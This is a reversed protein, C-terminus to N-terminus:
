RGKKRAPALVRLSSEVPQSRNGALDTATLRLKYLGPKTPTRSWTYSRNGRGVVASTSFAAHRRPDLVVLGVRSIKTLSFSLKAPKGGRIRRTIAGVAPPEALDQTFDQATQCYVPTGLRTCLGSLFDRTLKHYGLDAESKQDYLSWYGTNYQPTEVQAEAEATSYLSQARPDGTDQAFDYLGIVSQLFANIVKMEPAFSYILYHPGAQGQVRVGDPPGLEFIGLGRMATDRYIPDGLLATSRSLAQLATAQSLGSAWPPQGGGFEFYYEWATQGGREAALGVLEDALAKTRSTRGERALGNLKGFNGLMQLQIGQRPYYQWVLESGDFEVRQGYTLLSGSTWWDRNRELTLSQANLRTPTVFGRRAMDDAEAMVARLETRRTGGTAQVARKTANYADRARAYTAQDIQGADLLAQIAQRFSQPAAQAPGVRKYSRAARSRPPAPMDAAPLQRDDARRVKGDGGLVLVPEASASGAALLCFVLATLVAFGSRVLGLTSLEGL